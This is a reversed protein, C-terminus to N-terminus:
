SMYHDNSWWTKVDFRDMVVVDNLLDTPNGHEHSAQIGFRIM